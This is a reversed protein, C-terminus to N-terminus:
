IPFGAPEDAAKSWICDQDGERGDLLNARVLWEPDIHFASDSIM